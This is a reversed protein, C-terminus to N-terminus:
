GNCRDIIENIKNGMTNLDERGYDVSLKGIPRPIVNSEGEGEPKIEDEGPPADSVKKLAKKAM